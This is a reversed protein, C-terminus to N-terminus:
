HTMWSESLENKRVFFDNVNMVVSVNFLSESTINRVPSEVTFM